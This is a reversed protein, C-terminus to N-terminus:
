KDWVIGWCDNAREEFIESALHASMIDVKGDKFLCWGNLEGPTCPVILCKPNEAEYVRVGLYVGLAFPAFFVASIVLYKM